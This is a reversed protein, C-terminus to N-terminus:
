YTNKYGFKKLYCNKKDIEYQEPKLVFKIANM